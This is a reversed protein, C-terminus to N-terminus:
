ACRNFFKWMACMPVPLSMVPLCRFPMYRFLAYVGYPFDARADIPIGSARAAPGVMGLERATKKSVAGNKRLAISCISICVVCRSGARNKEELEDVVSKIKAVVDVTLESYV